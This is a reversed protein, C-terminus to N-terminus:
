IERELEERYERLLLWEKNMLLNFYQLTEEHHITRREILEYIQTSTLDEVRNPLNPYDNLKAQYLATEPDRDEKSQHVRIALRDESSLKQSQDIINSLKTQLKEIVLKGLENVYSLESNYEKLRQNMEIKSATTEEVHNRYITLAKITAKIRKDYQKNLDSLYLIAGFFLTISGIVLFGPLFTVKNLLAFGGIGLCAFFGAIAGFIAIVAIAAIRNIQSNYREKHYPVRPSEPHHARLKVLM